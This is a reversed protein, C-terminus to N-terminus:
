WLREGAARHRGITLGLWHPAFELRQSPCTHRLSLAWLSLRRGGRSYRRPPQAQDCSRAASRPAHSPELARVPRPTNRALARSRHSPRPGAHARHTSLAPLSPGTGTRRRALRAGGSEWCRLAAVRGGLPRRRLHCARCHPSDGAAVRAAWAWVRRAQWRRSSHAWCDGVARGVLGWLSDQRAEQRAAPGAVHAASPAVTPRRARSAKSGMWQRMTASPTAWCRAWCRALCTLCRQATSSASAVSPRAVMRGM